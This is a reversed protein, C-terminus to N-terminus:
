IVRIDTKDASSFDSKIFYVGILLQTYMNTPPTPQPSPNCPCRGLKLFKDDLALAAVRAPEVHGLAVPRQRHEAEVHERRNGLRRGEQVADHVM